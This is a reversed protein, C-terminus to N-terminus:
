SGDLPKCAEDLTVGTSDSESMVTLDRGARGVSRGSSDDM